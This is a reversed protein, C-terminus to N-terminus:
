FPSFYSSFNYAIVNPPGDVKPIATSRPYEPMIAKAKNRYEESKEANGQKDEARWLWGYCWAEISQAKNEEKELYLKINEKLGDLSADEKEPDGMANYLHARAIHLYLENQSPDDEL